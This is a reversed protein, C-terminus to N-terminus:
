QVGEMLRIMDNARWELFGGRKLTLGHHVLIAGGLEVLCWKKNKASYNQILVFANYAVGFKLVRMLLRNEENERNKLIEDFETQLMGIASAGGGLSANGELSKKVCEKAIGDALLKVQKHHPFDWDRVIEGARERLLKHQTRSSLTPSKSRILKTESQAVLRSALQLFQEANDTSADCLKDVGFFFPRNYRHFLHIRAGEALKEDVALQKTPSVEWDSREMFLGREPVRKAYREFLISLMALRMDEGNEESGELYVSIENEFATRREQSIGNRFQQADVREALEDKNSQSIDEPVASLLDGLERFNNRYFANMRCLYRGAMDKAMKRFLKRRKAREASNQMWIDTIERSLKLGPYEDDIADEQLLAGSPSLADFRSLIWRGLVLERCTLWKRLARLQAPHLYHADDFIILPRLSIYRNDFKVRFYKIVDFPQYASAAREDLKGIEPPILAASAGFIVREVERARKLLEPGNTGGIAAIQPDYDDEASKPVLHINDLEIGSNKADRIWTLMTRAQLLAGMLRFSVEKSYPLEWFERYGSGLPVRGGLVAPMQDELAGCKTLAEMLPKNRNQDRNRCLARLTPYQFLRALTTKGSGPTGFVMTLRDYLCGAQAPKMFFTSLPEPTVVALFAEDDHIHETVRKEFHNIM